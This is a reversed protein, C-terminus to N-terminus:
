IQVFISTYIITADPPSNKVIATYLTITIVDM